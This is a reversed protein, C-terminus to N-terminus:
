AGSCRQRCARNVLRQLGDRRSLSWGLGDGWRWAGLVIRYKLIWGIGLLGELRSKKRDRVCVLFLDHLFMGGLLDRVPGDTM